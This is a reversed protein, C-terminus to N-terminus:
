QSLEIALAVAKENTSSLGEGNLLAARVYGFTINQYIVAWRHRGHLRHNKAYHLYKKARYKLWFTTM